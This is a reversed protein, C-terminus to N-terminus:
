ECVHGDGILGQQCPCWEWEPLTVEEKKDDDARPPTAQGESKKTAKGVHVEEHKM